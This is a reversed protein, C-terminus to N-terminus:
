RTRLFANLGAAMWVPGARGGSKGAASESESKGGGREGTPTVGDIQPPAPLPPPARGEDLINWFACGRPRMDRAGGRTEAGAENGATEGALIAFADAVEDPYFLPFKGDGAWGSVLLCLVPSLIVSSHASVVGAFSPHAAASWPGNALGVILRSPPVAVQRVGGAVGDVDSFAGFDM